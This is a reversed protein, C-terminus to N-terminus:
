EQGFKLIDLAQRYKRRATESPSCSLNHEIDAIKVERAIANEAVRGIYDEYHEIAGQKKTLLVVADVTYDAVGLQQLLFPTFAKNDELVDHLWAAPKATESVKEAVAAPHTIYPTKKDNRFQNHHAVQAIAKALKIQNQLEDTM